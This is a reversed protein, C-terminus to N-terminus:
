DIDPMQYLHDGDFSVGVQVAMAGYIISLWITIQEIWM